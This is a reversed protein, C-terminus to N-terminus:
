TMEDNLNIKKIQDLLDNIVNDEGGKTPREGSNKRSEFKNKLYANNKKLYAIDSKM